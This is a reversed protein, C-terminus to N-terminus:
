KRQFKLRVDSIFTPVLIAVGWIISCPSAAFLYAFVLLTVLQDVHATHSRVMVAYVATLSGLLCLWAAIKNVITVPQGRWGRRSRILSHPDDAIVGILYILTALTAMDGIFGTFKSFIFLRYPDLPGRWMLWPHIQVADLQLALQELGDLDSGFIRSGLESWILLFMVLYIVTLAILTVRGIAKFAAFHRMNM